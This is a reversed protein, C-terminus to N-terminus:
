NLNTFIHHLLISIIFGPLAIVPIRRFYLTELIVIVICSTHELVADFDETNYFCIKSTINHSYTCDIDIRICWIYIFGKIDKDGGCFTDLTYDRHSVLKQQLKADTEQAKAINHYFIPYVSDPLNKDNYGYLNSINLIEENDNIELQYLADAVVINEGKIYKLEPGFEELIIRWRM